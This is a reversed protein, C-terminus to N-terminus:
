VEMHHPYFPTVVIAAFPHATVGGGLNDALFNDIRVNSLSTLGYGCVGAWGSAISSDTQSGITAYTSGNRMPRITTGTVELRITDSTAWAGGSPGLQTWTGAVMKFLYSDSTGTSGPYLGYYTAASSSCRCAVGTWNVTGIAEIVAQSYHDNNFTDASWRCASEDAGNACCSDPTQFVYMNLSVASWNASYATLNQDTSTTFSDSAPLAM